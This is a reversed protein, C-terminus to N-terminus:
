PEQNPAAPVSYMLFDRSDSESEWRKLSGEPFLEQLRLLSDGDDKNLIFLQPRTESTLEELQDPWFAFNRVGQGAQIGVLTTDMWYPYPIVHATDYSGITEAFGTIVHGAESTNLHTLRIHKAFEDFTLRYNLSAAIVFLGLAALPGIWRARRDRWQTKLWEPIAALPVAALTFVPIIAAAARNPAPNENPFALSLTSPLMLILISVLIYVDQWNRKRLYRVLTIVVGLHFLAGTVWDLAPRHTLTIAWIEGNDWGFMGLGKVVNSIFTPLPESPLERELDTVRTLMRYMFHEPMEAAVRLLPLFVVLAVLGCAVLWGLIQRRQGRATKHLLFLTVGVAVAIPVVRAPSYGHLGFGVFLGCLLLHNRQKLRLGRVLHYMAPAAFLAYLPFRLGFRSITNPWYAVGALLLAALAVKRGGFERAFLYLYPLTLVGAIVTGIKLTLFSLGTNLLKITAAILYFQFAERGTNDPFFIRTQGNLLDVVDNLKEAHDSWMELPVTSLQTFRFFIALGFAALVLLTWASIRLVKPSDKWWRRIRKWLGALSIDGEWFALMICIMASVWFVLTSFRFLNGGSTIWTLLSLVAAAVLYALRVQVAGVEVGESQRPRGVPLDGAWIAIGALAAAVVYILVSLWIPQSRLELRVQAFMALLLALPLRIHAMRLRFAPGIDEIDDVKLVARVEAPLSEVGEDPIPIPKLRLLSKFWDLVTLEDRGESSL